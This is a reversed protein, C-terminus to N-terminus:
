FQNNAPHYLRMQERLIDDLKQNFAAVKTQATSASEIAKKLAEREDITLNSFDPDPTETDLGYSKKLDDLMKQFKHEVEIKNFKLYFAYFKEQDNQAEEVAATLAIFHIDELWPYAELMSQRGKVGVFCNFLHRIEREHHIQKLTELEQGIAFLKEKAHKSSDAAIRQCASRGEADLWQYEPNLPDLIKGLIYELQIQLAYQNGEEEIVWARVPFVAQYPKDEPTDGENELSSAFASTTIGCLLVSFALTPLIKMINIGIIFKLIICDSPVYFSNIKKDFM